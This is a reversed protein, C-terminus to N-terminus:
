CVTKLIEEKIQSFRIYAHPKAIFKCQITFTGEFVEGKQPQWIGQFAEDRGRDQSYCFNQITQGLVESSITACLDQFSKWGLTHLQYTMEKAQALGTRIM